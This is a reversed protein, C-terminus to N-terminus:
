QADLLLAILLAILAILAILARVLVLDHNHFKPNTFNPASIPHRLFSVKLPNHKM